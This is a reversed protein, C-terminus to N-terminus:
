VPFAAFTRVPTVPHGIPAGVVILEPAVTLVPSSSSFPLATEVNAPWATVKLGGSPEPVSLRLGAFTLAEDVTADIWSM